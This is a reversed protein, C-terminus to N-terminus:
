GGGPFHSVTCINGATIANPANDQQGFFMAGDYRAAGVETTLGVELDVTIVDGATCNALQTETGPQYVKITPLAAGFDNAGCTMNPNNHLQAYRYGACTTDPTATTSTTVQAAAPWPAGIALALVGLASARRLWRSMPASRISREM